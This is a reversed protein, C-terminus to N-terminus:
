PASGFCSAAPGQFDRPTDAQFFRKTNPHVQPDDLLEAASAWRFDRHQDDGQLSQQAPWQLLVGLTVYHTGVDAAEFTNDEYIHEFAGILQGGSLTAGTEVRSIRAQAQALTENKRIRGGPVFWYGQAPRNRRLGLLIRDDRNRIILDISVLPTHRIIGLFADDDPREAM